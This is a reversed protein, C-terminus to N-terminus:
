GELAMGVDSIVLRVVEITTRGPGTAVERRAMALGHNVLRSIMARDFGRAHVLLEETVGDPRVCPTRKASGQRGHLCRWAHPVLQTEPRRQDGLRCLSLLCRYRAHM